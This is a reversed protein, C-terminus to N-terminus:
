ISWIVSIQNKESVGALTSLPPWVREIFGPESDFTLIAQRVKVEVIKAVFSDTPEDFSAKGVLFNGLDASV